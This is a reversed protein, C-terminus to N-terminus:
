KATNKPILMEEIRVSLFPVGYCTRMGLSNLYDALATFSISETAYREFISRAAELKAKDNSPALRLMEINGQRKGQHAPFNDPGDFRETRGDPYVKLRKDRGELVVRWLEKEPEACAFCGVDFGLRVPGGMWEGNRAQEVMGGMVRYSKERTEKVSNKGELLATIETADDASTWEKGTSDYLLCGAEELQYLFHMLQKSSKWGFRDLKDVIIWKIRGAKAQQLMKQFNPRKDATDRAWGEDEFWNSKPITADHRMLFAKVAAYQRQTDQQDDSTRVYAAGDGTLNIENAYM